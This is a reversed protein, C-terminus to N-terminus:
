FRLKPLVFVVLVLVVMLGYAIAYLKIRAFFGKGESARVLAGMRRAAAELGRENKDLGQGARNVVDKDSDLAESFSQSSLKLNTAMKLISETIYEQEQRQHDLLAETTSIAAAKSHSSTGLLLDRSTTTAQPQPNSPTQQAPPQTNRSRLTSSTTTEPTPQPPPQAEQKESGQNGYFTDPQVKPLPVAMEVDAQEQEEPGDEEEEQGVLDTSRSDLSESPTAIIGALIDEGSESDEEEDSVGADSGTGHAAIDELDKMRETLMELVERKHNLDTVLDHRPLQFKSGVADQELRTLLTRAHDINASVRKREYESTRLRREREADARLVTQQLRALLRTLETLSDNQRTPPSFTGASVSLRAM